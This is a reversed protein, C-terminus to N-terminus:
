GARSPALRRRRTPPTQTPPTRTARRARRRADRAAQGFYAQCAGLSHRKKVAAHAHRDDAGATGAQMSVSRALLVPARRQRCVSVSAAGLACPDGAASVSAHECFNQAGPSRRPPAQTGRRGRGAGGRGGRVAPERRGRVRGPLRGARGGRRTAGARLPRHPPARQRPLRLQCVRAGGPLPAPGLAGQARGGPEPAAPALARQRSRAPTCTRPM